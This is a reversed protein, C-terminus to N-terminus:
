KKRYILVYDFWSAERPQEPNYERVFDFNQDLKDKLMNNIRSDVKYLVFIQGVSPDNKMKEIISDAEQSYKGTNKPDNVENWNLWVVQEPVNKPYSLINIKKDSEGTSSFYEATAWSLGTTVLYDGSQAESHIEEIMTKDTSQYNGNDSRFAVVNKFAFFLLLVAILSIWVKDKIKSWLNALILLFAPLVTMEYRGVVYAPKFQSIALAGVMPFLLYFIVVANMKWDEKQSDNSSEVVEDGRFYKLKAVLYILVVFTIGFYAWSSGFSLYSFSEFFRWWYVKEIYTNVGLRGQQLSILIFPISTLFISFQVFLIQFVKKLYKRFILVSLIQSGFILMLWPHVYFGLATFVLYPLYSKWGPERVSKVFYFFSLLGILAALTYAKVQIAYWIAFYNTATLFAALLGVEKKGFFYTGAKYMMWILLLFCFVSFGRLAMLNNGFALSWIKLAYNHLLQQAYAVTAQGLEGFSKRLAISVGAEDLWFDLLNINEFTLIFGLFLCISLIWHERKFQFKGSIDSNV